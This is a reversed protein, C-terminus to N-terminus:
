LKFTSGMYNYKKIAKSIYEVSIYIYIFFQSIIKISIIKRLYNEM